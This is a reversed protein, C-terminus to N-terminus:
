LSPHPHCNATMYDTKPVSILLGLGKALEAASTVPVTSSSCIPVIASTTWQSPPKLSSYVEGHEICFGHVKDIMADGWESTSKRYKMYQFSQQSRKPTLSATNGGPYTSQDPSLESSSQCNLMIHQCAM